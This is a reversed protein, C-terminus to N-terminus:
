NPSQNYSCQPWIPLIPWKRYQIFISFVRYLLFARLHGTCTMPLARTSQPSTILGVNIHHTTVFLAHMPWESQTFLRTCSVPPIHHTPHSVISSVPVWWCHDCAHRRMEGTSSSNRSVQGVYMKPEAVVVVAWENESDEDWRFCM